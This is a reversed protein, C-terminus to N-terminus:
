YAATSTQAEGLFQQDYIAKLRPRDDWPTPIFILFYLYFFRVKLDWIM